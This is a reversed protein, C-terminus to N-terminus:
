GANALSPASSSAFASFVQRTLAAVVAQDHKALVDRYARDVIGQRLAHDNALQEIADVWAIAENPVLLGNSRHQVDDNYLPTDSYIGPLRAAGYERFKVSTKCNEFLSDAVPALAATWNRSVIFRAFDAYSSMYPFGSVNPHGVLADPCWGVFEFTVDDGFRERALNVIDVLLPAVNIRRSTPYGIRIPKTIAPTGPVSQAFLATDVPAPLYHVSSLGIQQQLYHQLAPSMVWVAAAGRLFGLLSRRVAPHGYYAANAVDQIETLEFLNDDLFYVYPRGQEAFYQPLWSQRPNCLRSLVLLDADPRAGALRDAPITRVTAFAERLLREVIHTTAIMGDVILDVRM